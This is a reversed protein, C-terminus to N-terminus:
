PFIGRKRYVSAIREIALIYSATRLDVLYKKSTSYVENIVRILRKELANNVEIEDWYYGMRDQIWELYSVIVGGSNALIDPVIIIGRNLLIEEAEFTTPGNAGEIIYKAKIDKAVEKTIQNEKAAPIIIDVDLKFLDENTISEANPYGSVTRRIKGEIDKEYYAYKILDKIDLGKPNYVGGQSDTIGVIIAGMESLFLATHSGVNGFGQIAVKKNKVDDGFLKLFERTVIAVGRGTAEKRGKSGGLYVPKGTVVAPENYGRIISYTDMIWAMVQEDTLVDPAPIDMSPGILNIIEYTYRRTLRELEGMSLKTPDVKVGGKAGGFPLDVLSCKFTMWQALAVIEDKDVDPSYRIGGKYPGLANNYQCRYGEFIRIEGNDMKVPIYVEVVREPYSLIEKIWDELHMIEAAKNFQKLAEERPNKEEMTLIKFDFYNVLM